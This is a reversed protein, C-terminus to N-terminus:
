EGATRVPFGLRKDVRNLLPQSEDYRRLNQCIFRTTDDIRTLSQAGVHPTIIVNPMDWLSSSEALPEIETVDLGAGRLRNNKLSEVLASEVVVAGRAVNILYASPKMTQFRARDFLGQTQSNLPLCLIVVDAIALLDDLRDAPWLSEVYPPKDVPFMDTALIRVKMVSLTQAIRRGNGGFGVIGVRKGHLDDTPLRIFEKRQQARYFAPGSRVLGFLLMLTQEAVQDAFLGSASTVEIPSDIVSPKLCHDLGAATSQIWHLRGRAVVEDWPLEKEKAHGIYIDAEFVDRDISQQTALHISAGPAAQRIQELHQSEAPYCLVIRQGALKNM